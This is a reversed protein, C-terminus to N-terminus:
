KKIFGYHKLLQIRQKREDCLSIADLTVTYKNEKIADCLEKSYLKNDNTANNFNFLTPSHHKILIMDYCYSNFEIKEKEMFTKVLEFTTKNTKNQVMKYLKFQKSKIMVSSISKSATLDYTHCIKLLMVDSPNCKKPIPISRLTMYEIHNDSLQINENLITNIIDISPCQMSLCEDLCKENVILKMNILKQVIINESNKCAAYLCEMSPCINKEVCYDFLLENQTQCSFLMSEDTPIFGKEVIKDFIKKYNKCDNDQYNDQYMYLIKIVNLINLNLDDNNEIIKNLLKWKCNTFNRSNKFYEIIQENSPNIDNDLFNILIGDYTDDTDYLLITFDKIKNKILIDVGIQNYKYGMLNILSYFSQIRLIHNYRYKISSICSKNYLDSIMNFYDDDFVIMNMFKQYSAIKSIEYIEDYSFISLRSMIYKKNVNKDKSKLEECDFNIYGCLSLNIEQNKTFEYGKDIIIKVWDFTYDNKICSKLYALIKDMQKTTPTKMTMLGVFANEASKITIWKPVRSITTILRDYVDDSINNNINNDIIKDLNNIFTHVPLSLADIITINNNM